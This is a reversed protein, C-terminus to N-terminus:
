LQLGPLNLQYIDWGGYESPKLMLKGKGQYEMFEANNNFCGKYHIQFNLEADTEEENIKIDTIKNSIIEFYDFSDLFNNIKKTIVQKSIANNKADLHNETDIYLLDYGIGDVNKYKGLTSTLLYDYAQEIDYKANPHFEEYTFCTQMGAIRMDEMEYPFLEETIFRYLEREEVECITSLSLGNLVMLEFLADLEESLEKDTLKIVPKVKPKGLCEWVTIMEQKAWQEEFKEIYNLWQMELDPSLNENTESFSMGFKEELAKKKLGLDIKKDWVDKKM